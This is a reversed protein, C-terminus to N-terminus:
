ERVNYDYTGGQAFGNIDFSANVYNHAVLPIAESAIQNVTAGDRIVIYVVAEQKGLWFDESLQSSNVQVTIHLMGGDSATVDAVTLEIPTAVARTGTRFVPDNTYRVYAKIISNETDKNNKWAEVLATNLKQPNIMFDLSTTQTQNDLLVKGDSYQPIFTVSQIQNFLTAIQREVNELRNEIATIRSKIEDIQAQFNDQATKVAAAITANIIGGDAVADEIAKEYAATLNDEAKKLAAKLDDIEKQLAADGEAVQTQLAAIKGDIEAKTYYGEALTSNVWEMMSTESATIATKIADTYAETIDEKATAIAATYADTIETVKKALEADLDAISKNIADVKEAVDKEITDIDTNITAILANIGSITTQTAEYQELTSFTANAWDKNGQLGTDVYTKLDAINKGLQEDNKALTQLETTITAIKGEITTKLETLKDLLAQENEDIDDGLEKELADIATNTATLDSQLKETTTELTDIYGKLETSVKELEPLTNKINDVQQNITPIANAKTDGHNVLAVIGLILAIVVGVSLVALWIKNTKKETAQM